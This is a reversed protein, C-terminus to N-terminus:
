KNLSFPHKAPMRVICRFLIEIMPVENRQQLEHQQLFEPVKKELYEMSYALAEVATEAAIAKEAIREADYMSIKRILRRIYRIPRPM